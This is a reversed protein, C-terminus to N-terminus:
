PTGAPQNMLRMMELWPLYGQVAQPTPPGMQADPGYAFGPETTYNVAAPAQQEGGGARKFYGIQAERLPANAERDAEAQDMQYGSFAGAGVTAFANPDNVENPTLGTWPRNRATEAALRRDKNAKQRQQEHEYAGLGAGILAM